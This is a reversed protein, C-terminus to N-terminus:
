YLQQKAPSVARAEAERVAPEPGSDRPSVTESPIRLIPNVFAMCHLYSQQTSFFIVVQASASSIFFNAASAFRLFNLVAWNIRIAIASYKSRSDFYVFLLPVGPQKLLRVGRVFMALHTAM